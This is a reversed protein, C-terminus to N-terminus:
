LYIVISCIRNLLSLRPFFLSYLISEFCLSLVGSGCSEITHCIFSLEYKKLHYVVEHVVSLVCTGRVCRGNRGAECLGRHAFDGSLDCYAEERCNCFKTFFKSYFKNRLITGKLLNRRRLM